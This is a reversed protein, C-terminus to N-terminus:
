SLELLEEIKEFVKPCLRKYIHLKDQKLFYLKFCEAFYEELSTISYMTPFVDAMYSYLKDYGVHAYLFEDFEKDYETNAFKSHHPTNKFGQNKTRTHFLLRKYSFEQEISGDGYIMMGFKDEVAHGIEHIIDEILDANSSPENSVYIAGNKYMANINREKLEDFYGIFIDDLEEVLHNPIKHEVVSLVYNLDINSPVDNKQYVLVRKSFIYKEKSEYIFSLSSKRVYESTLMKLDRLSLM